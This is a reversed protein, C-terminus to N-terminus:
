KLLQLIREMAETEQLFEPTIRHRRTRKGLKKKMADDDILERNVEGFLKLYDIIKKISHSSDRLTTKSDNPQFDAQSIHERFATEVKALVNRMENCMKENM